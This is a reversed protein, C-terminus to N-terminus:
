MQQGMKSGFQLLMLKLASIIRLFCTGLGEWTLATTITPLNAMSLVAMSFSTACVNKMILTCEYICIM